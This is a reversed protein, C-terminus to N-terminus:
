FTTPGKGWFATKKKRWHTKDCYRSSDTASTHARHSFARKSLGTYTHEVQTWLLKEGSLEKLNHKWVLEWYPQSKNRTTLTSLHSQSHSWKAEQRTYSAGWWTTPYVGTQRCPQHFSDPKPDTIWFKSYRTRLQYIKWAPFWQEPFVRQTKIAFTLIHRHINRASSFVEWWSFAASHPLPVPVVWVAHACRSDSTSTAQRNCGMPWQGQLKILLVGILMANCIHNNNNRPKMVVWLLTQLTLRRSSLHYGIRLFSDLSHESQSSARHSSPVCAAKKKYLDLWVGPSLCFVRESVRSTSM